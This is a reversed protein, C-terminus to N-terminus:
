SSRGRRKSAARGTFARMVPHDLSEDLFRLTGDRAGQALAVRDHERMSNTGHAALDSLWPRVVLVDIGKARAALVERRLIRAFPARVLVPSWKRPDRVPLDVDKRYGLPAICLIADCGAEVALDLSTGSVVGGDIYPRGNIEVAPFIGPIAISALVAECYPAPPGDAAGFAARRGTRLEAACLVVGRRPWDRRLDRCLRTRTEEMSYLGAPFARWLPDLPLRNAVRLLGRSSAIAVVSGISRRLREHHTQWLPTFVPGTGADLAAPHRGHAYDYFEGTRWGIALYAAVVAGASTGVIVDARGADVGREELAKLAGAHYGLGVLGGGGLVLGLKM